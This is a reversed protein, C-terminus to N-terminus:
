EAFRGREPLFLLRALGVGTQQLFVRAGRRKGRGGEEQRRSEGGSASFLLWIKNKHKFSSSKQPRSLRSFFILWVALLLFCFLFFFSLCRVERRGGRSWSSLGWPAVRRWRLPRARAEPGGRRAWSSSASAGARGMTASPARPTEGPARRARGRSSARRPPAAPPRPRARLSRSRSSGQVPAYGPRLLPRSRATQRPLRKAFSPPFSRRIERKVAATKKKRARSKKKPKVEMRQADRRPGDRGEKEGFRPSRRLICRFRSPLARTPTRKARCRGARLPMKKKECAFFFVADSARERVSLSCRSLATLGLPWAFIKRKKGKEESQNEGKERKRASTQKKKKKTNREKGPRITRQKRRTERKRREGGRKKM